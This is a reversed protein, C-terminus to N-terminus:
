GHVTSPWAFVAARRCPRRGSRRAATGPPPPSGGPWVPRDSIVENISFSGTILCLEGPTTGGIGLAAADVGHAGTVVPTGATLGTLAAAERTVTGSVAECAPVPPLLAALAGIGYLDLLEPM